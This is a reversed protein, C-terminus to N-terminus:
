PGRQRRDTGARMEQVAEIADDVRARLDSTPTVTM